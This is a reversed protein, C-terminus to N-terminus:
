GKLINSNKIILSSILTTKSFKMKRNAVIKESCPLALIIENDNIIYHQKIKFFMLIFFIFIFVSNLIFRFFSRFFKELNENITENSKTVKKYDGFIPVISWEVNKIQKNLLVYTKKKGDNNVYDYSLKDEFVDIYLKNKLLGLLLKRNGFLAWLIGVTVTLVGAQYMRLDLNDNEIIARPIKLVLLVYLLFGYFILQVIRNTLEAKLLYKNELRIPLKSQTHFINM